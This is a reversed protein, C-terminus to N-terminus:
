DEGISRLGTVPELKPYTEFSAPIPGCGCSICFMVGTALEIYDQESVSDLLTDVGGLGFLLGPQNGSFMNLFADVPFLLASGIFNTIGGEEQVSKESVVSIAPDSARRQKSLEGFSSQKSLTDKSSNEFPVRKDLSKHIQTSLSVTPSQSRTHPSAHRSREFIQTSVSLEEGNLGKPTQKLTGHFPSGSRERLNARMITSETHRRRKHRPSSVTESKRLSSSGCVPCFRTLHSLLQDSSAHNSTGQEMESTQSVSDCEMKEQDHKEQIIPNMNISDLKENQIPNSRALNSKLM